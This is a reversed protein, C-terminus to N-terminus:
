KSAAKAMAQVAVMHQIVKAGKAVQAKAAATSKRNALIAKNPPCYAM